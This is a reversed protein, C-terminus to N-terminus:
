GAAADAIRQSRGVLDVLVSGTWGFTFLGSIAIIPGLMQWGVPLIDSGFGVTTFCSAAFFGAARWNALLGSHVLAATWVVIEFIHLSLLAFVVTSMLITARWRSPQQMIAASRRAVHNTVRHVATAHIFMILLLMVGGFLLDAAPMVESLHQVFPLDTITQPVAEIRSALGAGEPPVAAPATIAAKTAPTPM